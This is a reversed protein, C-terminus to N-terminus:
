ETEPKGVQIQFSQFIEQDTADSISLIVDATQDAPANPVTWTLKHEPSLKMGDPGSELKTKVGGRRSKIELTYEYVAGPKTHLPPQSNVFLYDTDSEALLKDLDFRRLVLKDNTTPISVLLKAKPILFLRKDSHMKDTGNRGFMRDQIVGPVQRLTSIPRYQSPLMVEVDGIGEATEDIGSLRRPSGTSGHALRMILDGHVAPLFHYGEQSEKNPHIKTLEPSYVGFESYVYRADYSPVLMSAFFRASKTRISKGHVAIMGMEEGGRNRRMTFLTGDASAWTLGPASTPLAVKANLEEFSHPNLLLTTGDGGIARARSYNVLLPGSSANGMVVDAITTPVPNPVTAESEFTRLSWRQFANSEPLAVILEDIGATFSIEDETVPLYKVIKAENVDFIALKRMQSLHLILFRGGGGIAVNSIDSPLAIEIPDRKLPAVKFPMESAASIDRGTRPTDCASPRDDAVAAMLGGILWVVIAMRISRNLMM